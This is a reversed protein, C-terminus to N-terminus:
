RDEEERTPTRVDLGCAPCTGGDGGCTPDGCPQGDTYRNGTVQHWWERLDAYRAPTLLRSWRPLNTSRPM